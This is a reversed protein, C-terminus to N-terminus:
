GAVIDAHCMLVDMEPVGNERFTLKDDLSRGLAKSNIRYSIPEGGELRRVINLEKLLFEKLGEVTTDLSM